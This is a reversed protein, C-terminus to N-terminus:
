FGFALLAGGGAESLGAVVAFLVGPRYGLLEFFAGTRAGATGASGASCSRPATASSRARRRRGAPAVPRRGDADRRWRPAPVVLVPATSPTSSTPPEPASCSTHSRTASIAPSPSSGPRSPRRPLGEHRGRRQDPRLRRLHRSGARRAGVTRRSSPRVRRRGRQTRPPTALARRHARAAPMARRRDRDHAEHRARPGLRRRGAPRARLRADRRRLRRPPRSGLPPSRPGTKPTRSSSSPGPSSSPLAAANSSTARRRDSCRHRCARGRGHTSLCVLCSDLERPAASSRAPSTPTSRSTSARTTLTPASHRRQKAASASCTAPRLARRHGHPRHRRVQQRARPRDPARGDAFPSGDLPVLITRYAPDAARDPFSNM